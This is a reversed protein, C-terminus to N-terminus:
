GQNRRFVMLYLSGAWRPVSHSHHFRNGATVEELLMERPVGHGGRDPVDDPAAFWRWIGAPEFEIIALRGGPKLAQHLAEIMTQPSTFHHYVTRMFIADCCAGPLNTGDLAAQRVEVNELSAAGVASRIGAVQDPSLETSYVRSGPLTQAVAVTLRGSGAGIEAIADGNSVGLEKILRAGEARPRLNALLMAIEGEFLLLVFALVTAIGLLLKRGRTKM